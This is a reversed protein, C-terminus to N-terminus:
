PMRSCQAATYTRVFEVLVLAPELQANTPRAVGYPYKAHTNLMGHSRDFSGRSTSSAWPERDAAQKTPSRALLQLSKGEWGSASETYLQAHGTHM